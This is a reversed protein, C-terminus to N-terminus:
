KLIIRYIVLSKVMQTLYKPYPIKLWLSYRSLLMGNHNSPFDALHRIQKEKDTGVKELTLLWVIGSNDYFVSHEGGPEVERDLTISYIDGSPWQQLQYECSKVDAYELNDLDSELNTIHEAVYSDRYKNAFIQKMNEREAM